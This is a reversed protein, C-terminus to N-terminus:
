CQPDATTSRAPAAEFVERCGGPSSVLSASCRNSKTLELLLNLCKTIAKQSSSSGHVQTQRHCRLIALVMVSDRLKM